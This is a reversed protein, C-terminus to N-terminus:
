NNKEKEKKKKKKRTLQVIQNAHFEVSIFLRVQFVFLLAHKSNHIGMKKFYFQEVPSTKNEPEKM